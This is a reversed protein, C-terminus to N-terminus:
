LAKQLAEMDVLFCDEYVKQQCKLLREPNDPTHLNQAFIMKINKVLEEILKAKDILEESLNNIQDVRLECLRIAEESQEKGVYNKIQAKQQASEAIFDEMM